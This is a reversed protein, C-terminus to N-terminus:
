ASAAVGSIVEGALPNAAIWDICAARESDSWISDAYRMFIETETVTHM